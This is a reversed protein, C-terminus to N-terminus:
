GRGTGKQRHLVICRGVHPLMCSANCTAIPAACQLDCPSGGDENEQYAVCRPDSDCVEACTSGEFPSDNAGFDEFDFVAISLDQDSLEYGSWSSAVASPM